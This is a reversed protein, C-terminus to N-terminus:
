QQTRRKIPKRSKPKSEGTRWLVDISTYRIAEYEYYLSREIDLGNSDTLYGDKLLADGRVQGWCKTTM